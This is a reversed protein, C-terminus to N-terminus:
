TTNTLYHTSLVSKNVSYNKTDTLSHTFNSMQAQSKTVRHVTARWAGGNMPNELCSYNPSNGNGEGPSRGLGPILCPQGASSSSEKYVSSGPLGGTRIHFYYYSDNLQFYQETILVELCPALLNITSM